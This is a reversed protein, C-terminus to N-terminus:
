LFDLLSDQDEKKIYVPPPIYFSDYNIVDDILTNMKKMRVLKNEEKETIEKWGRGNFKKIRLSINEPVNMETDLINFCNNRCHLVAGYYTEKLGLNYSYNVACNSLDVQSMVYFLNDINDKSDSRQDKKSSFSYNNTKLFKSYGPRILQVYRIDNDIVKYYTHPEYIISVKKYMKLIDVKMRDMKKYGNKVLIPILEHMSDTLTLIDIDHIKKNAISDRVSGGYVYVNSIKNNIIEKIHFGLYESIDKEIKLEIKKLIM